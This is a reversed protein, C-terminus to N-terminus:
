TNINVSELINRSYAKLISFGEGIWKSLKEFFQMM